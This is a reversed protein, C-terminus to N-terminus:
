AVYTWLMCAENYYVLSTSYCNLSHTIRFTKNTSSFMLEPYVLFLFSFSKQHWRTFLIKEKGTVTIDLSFVGWFPFFIITTDVVVIIAIYYLCYM